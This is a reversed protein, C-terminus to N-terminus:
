KLRSLPGFHRAYRTDFNRHNRRPPRLQPGRMRVDFSTVDRVSGPVTKSRFRQAFRDIPGGPRIHYRGIDYIFASTGVINSALEGYRNEIVQADSTGSNPGIRAGAVYVPARSALSAGGNRSVGGSPVSRDGRFDPFALSPRSAHASVGSYNEAKPITYGFSRDRVVASNQARVEAMQREFAERELRDREYDAQQQRNNFYTNLGSALADGVFQGSSLTTSTSSSFGAAGGNRLATLPNFGAGQARKVMKHYNVESTTTTKRPRSGFIGSVVAPLVAALLSM